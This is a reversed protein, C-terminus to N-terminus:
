VKRKQQYRRQSRRNNERRSRIQESLDEVHKKGQSEQTSSEGPATPELVTETEPLLPKLWTDIQLLTDDTLALGEDRCLSTLSGDM